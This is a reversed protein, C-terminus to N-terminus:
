ENIKETTDDIVIEFNRSENPRLLNFCHSSRYETRNSLDGSSGHRHLVPFANRRPKGTRKNYSSKCYPCYFYMHTKDVKCCVVRIPDSM